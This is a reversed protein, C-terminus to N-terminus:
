IDRSEPEKAALYREDALVVSEEIQRQPVSWFERLLQDKLLARQVLHFGHKQYFQIAWTAAKWTGVLMPLGTQRRLHGLLRRGIGRGQHATRVYAHRILAVDGVHQLGMVGVLEKGEYFGWFMVGDGIEHRLEERSMYPEKWCDPAIVGRYASAADNVVECIKEFEGPECQRIM